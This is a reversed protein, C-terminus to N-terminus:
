TARALQGSQFSCRLFGRCSARDVQRALPPPPPPPLPASPPPRPLPPAPPPPPPSSSSSSSSSFLVYSVALAKRVSKTSWSSSIHPVSRRVVVTVASGTAACTEAALWNGVNLAKEQGSHPHHPLQSTAHASLTCFATLWWTDAAITSCWQVQRTLRAACAGIICQSRQRPGKQGVFVLRSRDSWRSANRVSSNPKPSQPAHIGAGIAWVNALVTSNRVRVRVRTCRNRPQHTM